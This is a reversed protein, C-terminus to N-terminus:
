NAIVVRSSFQQGDAAIITLVYVGLDLQKDLILTADESANWTQNFVIRGAVDFLQV